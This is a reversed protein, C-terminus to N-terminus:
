HRGLIRRLRSTLWPGIMGRLISTALNRVLLRTSLGFSPIRGNLRNVLDHELHNRLYHRDNSTLGGLRYTCVLRDLSEFRADLRRLRLLVDLDMTYRLRGDYPVPLHVSRRFFTAQHCLPNWFHDGADLLTWQGRMRWARGDGQIWADGGLVDAQSERLTALTGAFDFEQHLADGANLFLVWEGAALRLGKNLADSIGGDPERLHIHRIGTTALFSAISESTGDTSEGDIVLLDWDAAPQHALSRLTELVHPNNRVITVVTLIM